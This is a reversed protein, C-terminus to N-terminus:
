RASRALVCAKLADRLSRHTRIDHLDIGMSVM